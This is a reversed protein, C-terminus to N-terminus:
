SKQLKKLALGAVALDQIAVGTTDFITLENQSSRGTKAATIVQGIEAHISEKTIIGLSFAHQCEGIRLCQETSDTFITANSFLRPDLEQKGRTDTGIANIHTGAAVWPQMVVAERSSMATIIIDAGACAKEVSGAAIVKPARGQSVAVAKALTDPIRDFLRVEQVDKMIRLCADLQNLGQQGAGIVAVIKSDPRALYKLAIASLAATRVATIYNAAMVAIAEGTDPDFLMMTSQHNALGKQMNGAWFGGAKFGLVPPDSLFGAKVGFVANHGPVEERIVPFALNEERTFGAFCKEVAAFVEDFGILSRIKEDDLVILDRM